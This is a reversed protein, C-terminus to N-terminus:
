LCILKSVEGLKVRICVGNRDRIYEGIREDIKILIIFYLVFAIMIIFGVVGVRNDFNVLIFFINIIFYEKYGKNGCIFYFIVLYNFYVIIWLLCNIFLYLYLM